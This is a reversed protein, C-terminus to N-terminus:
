EYSVTYNKVTEWAQDKKLQSVVEVQDFKIITGDKTGCPIDSIKSTKLTIQVQSFTTVFPINTHWGPENIGPLQAGGRYYIGVNGEDITHLGQLTILAILLAIGIITEVM